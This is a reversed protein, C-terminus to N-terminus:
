TMGLDAMVEDASRYTKDKLQMEALQRAEEPFEGTKCAELLQARTAPFSVHTRLHELLAEDITREMAKM